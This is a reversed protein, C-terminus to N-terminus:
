KKLLKLDIRQVPSGNITKIEPRPTKLFLYCFGPGGILTQFVHGKADGTGNRTLDVSIHNPGDCKVVIVFERRFDIRPAEGGYWAKWVADWTEPDCVLGIPPADLPDEIRPAEVDLSALLSDLWVTDGSESDCAPVYLAKRRAESPVKGCWTGTISMPRYVSARWYSDATGISAGVFATILLFHRLSIQSTVKFM